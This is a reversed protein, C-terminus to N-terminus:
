FVKTGDHRLGSYDCGKACILGTDRLQVFQHNKMHLTAYIVFIMPMKLM